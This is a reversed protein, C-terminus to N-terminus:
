FRGSRDDDETGPIPPVHKDLDELRPVRPAPPDDKKVASPVDAQTADRGDQSAPPSVSIDADPGAAAPTDARKGFNVGSLSGSVSGYGSVSVGDDVAGSALPRRPQQVQAIGPPLADDQGAATQTYPSSLVDGENKESLIDMRPSGAPQPPPQEPQAKVPAASVEGVSIPQVNGFEDDEETVNLWSMDEEEQKEDVNKYSPTSANYSHDVHGITDMTKEPVMDSVNVINRVIPRNVGPKTPTNLLTSPSFGYTGRNAADSSPQNQTEQQGAPSEQGELPFYRNVFRDSFIYEAIPRNLEKMLANLAELQLSGHQVMRIEVNEFLKLMEQRRVEALMELERRRVREDENKVGDYDFRVLEDEFLVVAADPWKENFAARAGINNPIYLCELADIFAAKKDSFLERETESQTRPRPVQDSKQNM